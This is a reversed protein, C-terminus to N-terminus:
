MQTLLASVANSEAITHHQQKVSLLFSLKTILEQQSLITQEMTELKQLLESNRECSSNRNTDIVPETSSVTEEEPESNVVM